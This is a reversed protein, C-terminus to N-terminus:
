VKTMSVVDRRQGSPPPETEEGSSRGDLLYDASLPAAPVKVEGNRLMLGDVDVHRGAELM